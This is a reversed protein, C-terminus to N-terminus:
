ENIYKYVVESVEGFFPIQAYSDDLDDGIIVLIYTGGPSFVITADGQVYELEGTKNATEVGEPVGSPIKQKHQQQKLYGLIKASYEPSVLTGDLVDKLYMGCDNVSTFNYNKHAGKFFQGTDSFGANQAVRTVQTMGATYSGGGLQKAVAEWADNDSYTIMKRLLNETNSTDQMVGDQVKQYVTQIIFLKILSASYVQHSNISIEEGLDYDMFYLSWDGDKAGLMDTLTVELGGYDHIVDHARIDPNVIMAILKAADGRTMVTQPSYASSIRREVTIGRNYLKIVDEAFRFGEIGRFSTLTGMATESDDVFQSYIAASDERTIPEDAGAAIAPWVGCDTATAIYDYSDPDYEGVSHAIDSKYEYLWIATYAAEAATFPADVDFGDVSEAPMIGNVYVTEIYIRNESNVDSLIPMGVREEPTTKVFGFVASCIILAAAAAAIKFRPLRM